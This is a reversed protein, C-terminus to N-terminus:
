HKTDLDYSNYPSDKAIWEGYKDVMKDVPNLYDEKLNTRACDIKIGVGFDSAMKKAEEVQHANHKMVIFDWHIKTNSKYLKKRAILKKLNDFVKELNGGVRYKEYVEQTTGDISINKRTVTYM